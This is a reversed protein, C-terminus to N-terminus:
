EAKGKSNAKAIFKENDIIFREHTGKGIVGCEDYATVSFVLKRRDVETLVSEVWVKMGIPTAADHSVNIKTGVTGQGVELFPEVSKFCAEEMLAIMKPTAFVPALGSGVAMATNYERVITEARGKIGIEIM